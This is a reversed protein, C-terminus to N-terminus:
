LLQSTTIATVLKRSELGLTTRTVSASHATRLLELGESVESAELDESVEEQFAEGELDEVEM